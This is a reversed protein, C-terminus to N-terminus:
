SGLPGAAAPSRCGRSGAVNPPDHAGREGEREGSQQRTAGVRDVQDVGRPGTELPPERRHHRGRRSQFGARQAHHREVHAVAPGDIGGDHQQAIRRFQAGGVNTFGEGGVADSVFTRELGLDLGTLDEITYAYEASTLRRIVVLGPDGAHQEIYAKLAGEITTAAAMREADTPQPSKPPPMKRQRLMAVIKEWDKFGRGFDPAATMQEVNIRAEASADSHCDTCFQQLSTTVPAPM